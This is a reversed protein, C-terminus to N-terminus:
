IPNTRTIESISGAMQITTTAPLVVENAKVYVNKMVGIARGENLLALGYKERIKVNRIDRAPDSWEETQIGYEEGIAGLENRDCMYISTTKTRPNYPVFPSVLISLPMNVFLPLKPASALTQEWNLTNTPSAPDSPNASIGQTTGGQSAIGLGAMNSWPWNTGSPNGAWPGFWSGSGGSAIMMARMTPDKVFMIWTLPHMILTNPTFGMDVLLGFSELLDDFAMSGNATGDMSRGTTTGFFSSTPNSNDHTIMGQNEILRWIKEEKHRALARGAQRLTMNIVQFQSYQVMEETIPVQLGCKTAILSILSGPGEQIRRTPYEQGEPIDEATLAGMASFQIQQGNKITIKQMLSSGIMLPEAAELVVKTIVKPMWLPASSTALLDKLTYETGVAPNFGGSKWTALAADFNDNFEFNTKM